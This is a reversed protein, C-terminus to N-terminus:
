ILILNFTAEELVFFVGIAMAMDISYNYGFRSFGM